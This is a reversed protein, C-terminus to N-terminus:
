KLFRFVPKYFKNTKKNVDIPVAEHVTLGEVLVEEQLSTGLVKQLDQTVPVGDRTMITIHEVAIVDECFSGVVSNKSQMWHGM